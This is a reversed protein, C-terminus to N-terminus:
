EETLPSVKVASVFAWCVISITAVSLAPFLAVRVSVNVFAILLKTIERESGSSAFLCGVRHLILTFLSIGAPPM